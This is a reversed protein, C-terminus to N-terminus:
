IEWKSDSGRPGSFTVRAEEQVKAVPEPLHTALAKEVMKKLNGSEEAM